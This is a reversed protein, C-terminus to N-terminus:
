VDLSSFLTNVQTDLYPQGSIQDIVVRQFTIVHWSIGALILHQSLLALDSLVGKTLHSEDMGLKSAGLLLFLLMGAKGFWEQQTERHKKPLHKM